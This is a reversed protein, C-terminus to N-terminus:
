VLVGRGDGAFVVTLEGAGDKVGVGTLVRASDAGAPAGLPVGEGVTV